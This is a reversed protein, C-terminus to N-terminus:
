KKSEFRCYHTKLLASKGPNKVKATLPWRDSLKEVEVRGDMIMEVKYFINKLCHNERTVYVRKLIHRNSAKSYVARYKKRGNEDQAHKRFKMKTNWDMIAIKTM